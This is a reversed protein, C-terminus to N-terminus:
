LFMGIIVMFSSQSEHPLHTSSHGLFIRTIFLSLSSTVSGRFHLKHLSQMPIQSILAMSTISFGFEYIKLISDSPEYGTFSSTIWPASVMIWFAPCSFSISESISYNRLSLIFMTRKNGCDFRVLNSRLTRKAISLRVIIIFFYFMTRKNGCDFRVLNLRLTRKAISLRV